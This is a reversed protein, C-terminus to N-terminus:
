TLLIKGSQWLPVLACLKKLKSEKDVIIVIIFGNLFSRIKKQANGETPSEAIDKIGNWKM